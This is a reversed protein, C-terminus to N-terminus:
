SDTYAGGLFLLGGMYDMGWREDRYLDVNEVVIRWIDFGRYFDPPSHWLTSKILKDVNLLDDTLYIRKEMQGFGRSREGAMPILGYKLISARSKLSSIHYLAREM